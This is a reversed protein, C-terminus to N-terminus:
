AYGVVKYTVYGVLERVLYYANFFAEEHPLLWEGPAFSRRGSLFSSPFPSVTVGEKQFCAVARRMHWASTVVVCRNTHFRQRLVAASYLANEHTNRSKNELIIDVSRVGATILFQATMHGEDSVPTPQFPLSGMGGSILIKQVVGAKYLYLAQGARDAERGLLFRGNTTSGPTAVPIEKMGNVMGGTLLVAIQVSSDAPVAPPKQPPYEWWSALENTLFSNGFLWFVVLSLGIFRRRYRVNKTYFVLLLTIVLFGAPTLLYTITKSFFYFM